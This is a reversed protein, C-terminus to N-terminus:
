FWFGPDDHGPHESDLTRWDLVLMNLKGLAEDDIGELNHSDEAGGLLDLHELWGVDQVGYRVKSTLDLCWTGGLAGAVEREMRWPVVPGGRRDRVRFARRYSIADSGVWRNFAEYGHQGCWGGYPDEPHVDWTFDERFWLGPTQSRGPLGVLEYPEGDLWYLASEDRIRAM